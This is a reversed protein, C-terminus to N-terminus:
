DDADLSSPLHDLVSARITQPDPLERVLEGGALYQVLQPELTASRECAPCTDLSTAFLTV